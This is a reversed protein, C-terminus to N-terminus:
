IKDSKDVNYELIHLSKESSLLHIPMQYSFGRFISLNKNMQLKRSNIIFEGM